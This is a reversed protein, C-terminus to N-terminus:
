RPLIRFHKSINQFMDEVQKRKTSLFSTLSYNSMIVPRDFSSTALQFDRFLKSNLPNKPFRQITAAKRSNAVLEAERVIWRTSDTLASKVILNIVMKPIWPFVSMKTSYSVRSWGQKKPHKMVVWLGVNDDFDSAYQYDLTWRFTNFKTEEILKFYSSFPIGAFRLDFKAGTLITGNKFKKQDYVEVKQIRPVRGPYKAVDTILELCISPCADIDQIVFGKGGLGKIDQCVVPQGSELNRDQDSTLVFPLPKADFPELVGQHSHKKNKSAGEAIMLFIMIAVLFKYVNMM